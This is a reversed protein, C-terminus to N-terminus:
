SRVASAAFANGVASALDTIAEIGVSMRIFGMHLGLERRRDEALLRHTMTVAHSLSTMAGGLSHVLHIGAADLAALFAHVDVRSTDLEFSLMSGFGHELIRRAVANDAHDARGPYHVALIGTQEALWEALHAANATAREERVVYTVTGRRALWADFAGAALGSRDIFARIPEVLQSSGAIAGLVVDHHGALTKTASEVVVDCGLRLPRCHYPGALTNDVVLCAGHQHALTTLAGIDPVRMRPNSITEVLVLCTSDSFADAVAALDSAEVFTTAVGWRQMDRLLAQTIGFLDHSAVVHKGPELLTWLVAALAAMGGAATVCSEAGELEMLLSELLRHNPSGHSRHAIGVASGSFVEEAQALSAFSWAAGQFIPESVPQNAVSAPRIPHVVASALARM